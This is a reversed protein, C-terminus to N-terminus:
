KFLVLIVAILNGKDNIGAVTMIVNSKLEAKIDIALSRVCRDAQDRSLASVPIEMRSPDQRLCSVWSMTKTIISVSYIKQIIHCYSCPRLEITKNLRYQIGILETVINRSVVATFMLYLKYNNCYAYYKNGVM